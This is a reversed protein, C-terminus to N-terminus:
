RDGRDITAARARKWAEVGKVIFLREGEKVLGLRRAERALAEPSKSAALRRELERKRARLAAVEESRQALAERRELYSALPQYYLFGAFVVVGLALLRLARASRTRTVSRRKKKAPASRTRSVAAM